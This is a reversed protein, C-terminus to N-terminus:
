QGTMANGSITLTFKKVLLLRAGSEEKLSRCVANSSIIPFYKMGGTIKVDTFADPVSGCSWNAPNEWARSVAGTWVTYKTTCGANSICNIIAAHPLAGFGNALNVGVSNNLYCYSMITGRYGIGSSDTVNNIVPCTTCNNGAEEAYCNDIAGCTNNPGTNWGCWHTHHSGLLHGTEHTLAFVDWSFAPLQSYAGYIDCYGYAYQRNCMGNDLIYALGGNNTPSGDILLAVDGKFNNGSQNWYNKFADLASTATSTNYPDQSNWMVCKSLEMNIGENQYMVAVQNFLGDLYNQTATIDGGFNNSLLKYDAEWYVKIKRCVTTNNPVASALPVPHHPGGASVLDDRATCKFPPLEGLDKDNYLVYSGTGDKNEGLIYNGDQGSFLCTIDGNEFVSVSAISTSDDKVYGRYHLGTHSKSKVERNTGTTFFVEDTSLSIDQQILQLVWASQNGQSPIPISLNAAKKKFLLKSVDKDLGLTTKKSLNKNAKNVLPSASEKFLVPVFFQKGNTRKTVIDFLNSKKHQQGFLVMTHVLLCITVIPYKKM